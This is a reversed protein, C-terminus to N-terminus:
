GDKKNFIIWGCNKICYKAVCVKIAETIASYTNCQVAELKSFFLIM